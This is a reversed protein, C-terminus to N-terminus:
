KTWEMINGERVAKHEDAISICLIIMFCLGAVFNMALIHLPLGGPACYGWWWISTSIKQKSNLLIWVYLNDIHINLTQFYLGM